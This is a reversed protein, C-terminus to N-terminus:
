GQLLVQSWEELRDSLCSEVELNTRAPLAISVIYQQLDFSWVKYQIFNKFQFYIGKSGCDVTSIEYWEIPVTLGTKIIKALAEKASWLNVVMRCPSSFNANLLTLENATLYTKITDITNEDKLEIDVAMPHQEEFALSVGIHNSHSISIRYDTINHKIVPHHFVGNQIWITNHKDNSLPTQLALKASLRGLLFDCRRKESTIMQYYTIESRHLIAEHNKQLLEQDAYVFSLYGIFTKDARHMMLKDVFSTLM